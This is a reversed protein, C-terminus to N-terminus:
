APQETRKLFIRVKLPLPQEPDAGLASFLMRRGAETPQVHSCNPCAWVEVGHIEVAEGGEPQLGVSRTAAQLVHGCPCTPADPM